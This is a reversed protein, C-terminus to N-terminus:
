HYIIKQYYEECKRPFKLSDIEYLLENNRHENFESRTINPISNYIDMMIGKAKDERSAKVNVGLTIMDSQDTEGHYLDLMVFEDKENNFFVHVDGQGRSHNDPRDSFCKELWKFDAQVNIFNLLASFNDSFGENIGEGNVRLSMFVENFLVEFQIAYSVGYFIDHRGRTNPKNKNNFFDPKKV